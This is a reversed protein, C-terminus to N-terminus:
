RPVPTPADNAKIIVEARAREWARSNMMMITNLGHM